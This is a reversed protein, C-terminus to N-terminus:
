GDRRTRGFRRWWGVNRAGEPESAAAAESPRGSADRADALADKAEFWRAMWTAALAARGLNASFADEGIGPLRPIADLDPQKWKAIFRARNDRWLRRRDPLRRASAASAHDILVREDLVVPLGNVWVKFLLDLDESSALEYEESFGGLARCLGTPMVYAVGSPIETFPPITTVRDRPESRVSFPNGAATVAPVVLGPPPDADFDAVLISAWHAPVETDNNLFAIYRGAARDLGQNMAVAFGLNRENRVTVDFSNAVYTATDPGSGNDVGIAEFPVDTNARISEVCRRTLDLADWVPVVISLVPVPM